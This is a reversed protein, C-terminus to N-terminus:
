RNRTRRAAPALMAFFMSAFQDLPEANQTLKARLVAGEWGIWFFRSIAAADSDPALEDAEIAQRLCDEVRREWALLVAELQVRFADDLSALEQGLNGILCGRRYGYKLMGRKADEVFARLRSLPSTTEDDFIRAMKRAYYEVYNQIVAEGFEHKNAFFHYFSGKPVGVRKLVEDIGTVQFGRETLLETGCWVLARKTDGREAAREGRSRVRPDAQEAIAPKKPLRVKTTKGDAQALGRRM